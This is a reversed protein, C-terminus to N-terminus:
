QIKVGTQEQLWQTYTNNNWDGVVTTDQPVVIRFTTSGDSFPTLKTARPGVYPDPYLVGETAPGFEVREGSGSSTSEGGGPGGQDGTTCGALLGASVGAAGALLSRRSLDSLDVM